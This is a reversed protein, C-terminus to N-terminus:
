GTTPPRRNFWPTARELQAALSLMRAEDGHPGMFHAGIPLGSPTWYTPVSMAPNGTFNAIPTFAVYKFLQEILEDWGAHQDIEGLRVPPGAVVPTLLSDYTALFEGVVHAVRQLETRAAALVAPSHRRSHDALAWTFPEFSDRGARSKDIRAILRIARWDGLLRRLLNGPRRKSAETLIITFISEALSEWVVIFAEAMSQGDIPPSAEEVKHGMADLVDATEAVADRCEPASPLGRFDVDSIAIRLTEPDEAAAAAFSGPQPLAHYESGAVSGHTVDLLTASDRVSRSVALDVSLYDAPSAPYRPMRGRSPKLGFVGCASAPIRISGGGDSSHAMPVIGAATAAASGGSSGGPSRRLDWPNRTPGHLTPETTPLLGFEPSNTRGISILGAREVRLQFEDTTEPRYSRFFVSGYSVVDGAVNALDKTLFPVGLFPGGRNGTEALRRAREYHKAIVANLSPNLREVREIAAEVLDIATIEGSSVLGALGVADYSEYEPFAGM